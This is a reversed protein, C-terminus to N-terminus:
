KLLFPIAYGTFQIIAESLGVDKIKTNLEIDEPNYYLIKKFEDGEKKCYSSNFVYFCRLTTEVRHLLKAM